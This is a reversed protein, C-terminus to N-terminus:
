LAAAAVSSKYTEISIAAQVRPALREIVPLLRAAEEEASVPTAGPRTSEAGLDILQAGEDELRLAQDVARQPDLFQGGDSFSDPTVNVIGMLLPLGTLPITRGAVHWLRVPSVSDAPVPMQTVNALDVVTPHACLTLAVGISGDREAHHASGCVARVM